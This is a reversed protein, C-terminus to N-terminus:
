VDDGKSALRVDLVFRETGSRKDKRIASPATVEGYAPEDVLKQMVAAADLSQGDIRIKTGQIDLGTLWTEDDILRSMRVLEAYLDPSQAIMTNAVVLQRKGESLQSRLKVANEARQNTNQYMENVQQLELYKMGAALAFCVLVVALCYSVGLAGLIMRKKNRGQRAAEGFGSLVVVNNGIKAWAEHAHVDHCDLLSAIFEMVTSSSSIVLQVALEQDTTSLVTWGYCTDDEPFPSNAKVEMAVVSALNAEAAKPVTIKRSLVLEDPLMVASSKLETTNDPKSVPRGAQYYVPEAHEGYVTLTEDILPMVPSNPGWLFDRWGAQFIYLGRRLDYGFLSWPQSTELM